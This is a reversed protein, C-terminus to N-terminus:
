LDAYMSIMQHLCCLDCFALLLGVVRPVAFIM